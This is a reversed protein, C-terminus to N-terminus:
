RWNPDNQVVPTSRFIELLRKDDEIRAITNRALLNTTSRVNAIDVEEYVWGRIVQNKCSVPAGTLCIEKERKTRSPIGLPVQLGGNRMISWVGSPYLAISLRKKNSVM